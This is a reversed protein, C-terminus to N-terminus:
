LKSSQARLLEGSLIDEAHGMDVDDSQSSWTQIPHEASLMMALSEQGAAMHSAEPDGPMRM